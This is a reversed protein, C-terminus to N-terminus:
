SAARAAVTILRNAGVVTAGAPVDRTAVANAGIVAGRGVRIDGLQKAGAGIHVDDEIWPAAPLGHRAGITALHRIVVRQGIRASSPIVIGHPHPMRPQGDGAGRRGSAARTM